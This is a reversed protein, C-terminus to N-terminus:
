QQMLRTSARETPSTSTACQPLHPRCIQIAAVPPSGAPRSSRHHHCNTTTPPLLHGHKTFKIALCASHDHKTLM